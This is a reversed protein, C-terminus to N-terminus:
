DALVQALDYSPAQEVQALLCGRADRDPRFRLFTVAHRFRRGELQDFAVEVVREPERWTAKKGFQQELMGVLQPGLSSGGLPDVLRYRYTLRYSNVAYLPTVGIQM